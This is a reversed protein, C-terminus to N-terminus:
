VRVRHMFYVKKTHLRQCKSAEDHKRPQALQLVIGGKNPTVQEEVQDSLIESLAGLEFAPAIIIEQLILVHLYNYLNYSLTTYSNAPIPYM